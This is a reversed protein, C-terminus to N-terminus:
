RGRRQWLGRRLDARRGEDRLDSEAQREHLTRDEHDGAFFNEIM